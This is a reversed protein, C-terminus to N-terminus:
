KCIEIPQEHKYQEVTECIDTKTFALIYKISCIEIDRELKIYQEFTECM